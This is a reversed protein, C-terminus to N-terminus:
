EPIYIMLQPSSTNILTTTMHHFTDYKNTAEEPGKLMSELLFSLVTILVYDWSFLQKHWPLLQCSELM